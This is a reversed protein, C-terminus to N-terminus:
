RRPIHELLVHTQDRDAGNVPEINGMADGWWPGAAWYAWGMWQAPNADLHDLAGDIATLCTTSTGGGFEGLFARLGHQRLWATMQTLREAGITGSLCNAMDTGASTNDFYQHVEIVFNDAPDVIGQMVTANPTGYWSQHWSHAGTWANGPVMVVNTAGTARIAAIAANANELWDETPLDHPENMIAFLVRSNNKYRAALRTWLDALEDAGAVRGFYRAYNHPDLVVYAGKSVAHSVFHDIRGLEAADLEGFAAHQVREWRFPLRFVNMGLATFHDVEADTPYVYNAGFVGPLAHETFEAGALSVGRLVPMPPEVPTPAPAPAPAPTPTAPAPAAPTAAPAPSASAQPVLAPPSAYTPVGDDTSPRVTDADASERWSSGGESGGGCASLALVVMSACVFQTADSLRLSFLM